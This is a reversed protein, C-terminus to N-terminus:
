QQEAANARHEALLETFAKRLEPDSVQSVAATIEDRERQSLPRKAPKAPEVAPESSVPTGAKLFIEKILPKGLHDNLREVIDRKMFNLQQMWPASNVVVTLVGASFRSPRAKSAIQKGVTQDWARWIEVESFIKGLSQERLSNALLSSLRTPYGGARKKQSM